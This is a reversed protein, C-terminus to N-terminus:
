RSVQGPFACGAAVTCFLCGAGDDLPLCEAPAAPSSSRVQWPCPQKQQRGAGEEPAPVTRCQRPDPNPWDWCRPLSMVASLLDKPFTQTLWRQGLHMCSSAHHRAKALFCTRPFVPDTKSLSAAIPHFRAALM